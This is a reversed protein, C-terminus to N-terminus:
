LKPMRFALLARGDRSPFTMFPQSLSEASVSACIFPTALAPTKESDRVHNSSLTFRISSAKLDLGM